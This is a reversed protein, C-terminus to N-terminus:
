APEGDHLFVPPEHTEGIMPRAVRNLAATAHEMPCVSVPPNASACDGHCVPCGYSRLLLLASLLADRDALLATIKAWLQNRIPDPTM